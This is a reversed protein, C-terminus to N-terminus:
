STGGPLTGPEIVGTRIRAVVASTSQAPVYDVIRVEGGYARVVAAEELMEPTYDGGKVYVDPRLRELLPIPTDTDFVTVHDVCSLAALVGARDPACNIPREPGKLRRVSADGNLAVVLVDGLRAAQALYTTHGRHLVDFCGNTLVIRRGAARHEAVRSLLAAESLAPDGFRGLHEVLDETTCVSTGPQQVAVDAAAQAVDVAAPLALGAAAALTLAAVFTDGAGATQRESVAEASTRHAVGHDDLALAGDRDLTVVVATAGTRERLSAASEAVAATRLPGTPLPRGLVRVAEAANPTVLDPRLFAWGAPDHADVVLLPPRTTRALAAGVAAVLGGGDYDCVVLADAGDLHIVLQDALDDRRAPRLARSAVDDVRVLMQDGSLIRDKTVTRVDPALVLGSVEVGAAALTDRLRRGPADQGAVAVLRVRAGLAALNMATNAAGGPAYSRDTIEVVPAPAERAMRESRGRWWGDLMVDGVVTVAPAAHRLALPVDPTLPAPREPAQPSV